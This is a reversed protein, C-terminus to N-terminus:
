VNRNRMVIVADASAVHDFGLASFADLLENKTMSIGPYNHTEMIVWVIRHRFFKADYKLLEGEAGEIDCVLSYPGPLLEGLQSLTIADVEFVSKDSDGALSGCVPNKIDRRFKVKNSSYSIARNLVTFESENLCRQRDIIGVLEPDAEVVIHRQPTDLWRNVICATVGLCGGMEIVSMSRPLYKRAMKIETREYRKLFIEGATSDTIRQHSLDFLCHGYRNKKSYKKIYSGLSAHPGIWWWKIVSLMRRIWTM